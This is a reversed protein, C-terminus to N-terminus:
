LHVLMLDHSFFFYPYCTLLSFHQVQCIFRIKIYLYPLSGLSHSFHFCEGKKFTIWLTTILLRVKSFFNLFCVCCNRRVLLVQNFPASVFFAFFFCLFVCCSDHVLSSLAILLLFFLCFTYFYPVWGRKGQGFRLCSHAVGLGEWGGMMQLLVVNIMIEKVCILCSSLHPFTFFSSINCKCKPHPPPGQTKM